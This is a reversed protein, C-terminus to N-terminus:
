TSREASARVEADAVMDRAADHAKGFGVVDLRRVEGVGFHLTNVGFDDLFFIRFGIGLTRHRFFTETFGEIRDRNHLVAARRATRLRGLEVLRDFTRVLHDGFAAFPGVVFHAADVLSEFPKVRVKLLQKRLLECYFGFSWELAVPGQMSLLMCTGNKESPVFRM